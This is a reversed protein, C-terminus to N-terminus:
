GNGARHYFFMMHVQKRRWAVGCVDERTEVPSEDMDGNGHQKKWLRWKSLFFYIPEGQKRNERGYWCLVNLFFFPFLVLSCEKDLWFTKVVTVSMLQAVALGPLASSQIPILILYHCTDSQQRPTDNYIATSFTFSCTSKIYGEMSCSSFLFAILIVSSLM